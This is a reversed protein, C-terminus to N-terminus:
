PFRRPPSSGSDLISAGRQLFEPGGPSQLACARLHRAPADPLGVVASDSRMIRRASRMVSILVDRLELNSVLSNTLELLLTLRDHQARLQKHSLANDLAVAIADAVITLLHVDDDSYAKARRSAIGLTGLARHPTSLPVACSSLLGHAALDAPIEYDASLVPCEGDLEQWCSTSSVSRDLALSVRDFVLLPRLANPIARLLEEVNRQGKLAHLVTPTM